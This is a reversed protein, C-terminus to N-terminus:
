DSKKVSYVKVSNDFLITVCDGINYSSLDPVDKFWFGPIWIGPGKEGGGYTLQWSANDKKVIKGSVQSINGSSQKIWSPPLYITSGVTLNHADQNLTTLESVRTPDSLQETAIKEFTDGEKLIYSILYDKKQSPGTVSCASELDVAPTLSPTDVATTPLASLQSQTPPSTMQKSVMPTANSRGFLFSLIGVIIITGIWLSNILLKSDHGDTTKQQEM